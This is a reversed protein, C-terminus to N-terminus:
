NVHKLNIKLMPIGVLGTSVSDSQSEFIIADHVWHLQIHDEQTGDAVAVNISYSGVPLIPMCFVFDAMLHAGATTLVPFENYSLYTNDGFLSQGLKDKVFFGIVPRKIENVAKVVVRLIVEEGWYGM